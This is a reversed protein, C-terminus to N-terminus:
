PSKKPCTQDEQFLTVADFRCTERCIGCRNCIHTDIAHPEKKEGSIADLPCARRCTGCGNCLQSVINFTIM